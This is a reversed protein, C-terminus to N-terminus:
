MLFHERRGNSRRGTHPRPGAPWTSCPRRCRRTPRTTAMSKWRRGEGAVYFTCKTALWGHGLPVVGDMRIDMKPAGPAAVLIARVVLKREVDVWFQPSVTDAPSIAGVIWVARDNWRGNLVPRSLDVGPTVLEAATREVPQVYVGEILPLLANGGKRTATLKGARMVWVSDPSYLVGNGLAPDGVDIRLQTGHADTYRVSEYWTTVTETGDRGRATTKQTFILSTYWRGAYVDHLQRLADLGTAPTRQALIAGPLAALLALAFASSKPRFV